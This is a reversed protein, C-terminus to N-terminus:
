RGARGWGRQRLGREREHAARQPAPAHVEPLPREERAVLKDGRLALGGEGVAVAAAGQHHVHLRGADHLGGGPM